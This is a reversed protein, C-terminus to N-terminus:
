SSCCARDARQEDEERMQEDILQRANDQQEMPCPPAFNCLGELAMFDGHGNLIWRFRKLDAVDGRDIATKDEQDSTALDERSSVDVAVRKVGKGCFIVEEYATRGEAWGHVHYDRERNIADPEGLRKAEALCEVHWQEFTVGGSALHWGAGAQWNDRCWDTPKKWASVPGVRCKGSRERDEHGPEVRWADCTGCRRPRDRKQAAAEDSRGGDAADSTDIKADAMEKKEQELTQNRLARMEASSSCLCDTCLYAQYGEGSKQWCLLFKAREECRGEKGECFIM